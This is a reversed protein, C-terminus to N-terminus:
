AEGVEGFGCYMVLIADSKLTSMLKKGHHCKTNIVCNDVETICRTISKIGELIYTHACMMCM